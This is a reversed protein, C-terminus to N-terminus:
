LQTHTSADLGGAILLMRLQYNTPDRYGRATHRGLEIIDTSPKPPTRQQSRRHRLLRRTRGETQTPDPGLRAIEPIPCAPLRQILHAALRRDQAPTAQHFVDRVQQACRYAVEVSIHAENATFAEHLREQQRPTLTRARPACFFGSKTSPIGRAGATVWPTKSSTAAYRMSLTRPSSSSTFPTWCAPQTKSSALRHREQQGQFPDLMAIQIGSRFQEGREELWNKYVTGSRGPVLDLLRATPHDEGRTLDVIGTLERPGRRRRDQHHWVGRMSGPYVFGAFRAPDDSAAQLCPKIHSWVTNWTTALQRALGAITAGEFRLQRIAWRIARVGLRARPACVRENHELFTM